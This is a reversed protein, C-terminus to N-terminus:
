VSRGEGEWRERVRWMLSYMERGRGVEGQRQGCGQVGAWRGIGGEIALYGERDGQVGGWRGM